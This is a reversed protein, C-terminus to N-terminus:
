PRPASIHDCEWKEHIERQNFSGIQTIAVSPKIFLQKLVFPENIVGYHYLSPCMNLKLMWTIIVAGIECPITGLKQILIDHDDVDSLGLYNSITHSLGLYCICSWLMYALDQKNSVQKINSPLFYCEWVGTTRRTIQLM